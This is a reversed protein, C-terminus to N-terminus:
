PRGSPVGGPTGSPPSSPRGPIGELRQRVREEVRERIEEPVAAPPLDVGRQELAQRVREHRMLSVAMANEIAHKAQEPVREWVETLVELHIATAEAVLEDVKEIDEGIERAIRSIEEGFEAMAQFQELASEMEEHNGQEGMNRARNLRGNMAALSIETAVTQDRQALAELARFHGTASVNRAHAIAEQAELPVLDAVGDLVSLHRITAEAVLATVNVVAPEGNGVNEIRAAVTNMAEDYKRAALELDQLRGEKALAEMEKIRRDAFTLAREARVVDNGPLIMGMQETGLKVPYLADGPLSGQAAYATGGGVASLALVIAIIVSVMSSFRRTLTTQRSQRNSRSWPWKTVAQREHIHEMLQVRAKVKFAPSPRVDPAERIELALRLLPELRERLSPYRELCDGISAKGARIDDICQALIDEFKKQM